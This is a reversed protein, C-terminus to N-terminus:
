VESLLREILRQAQGAYGSGFLNLHNLIHYLNYLHKRVKYGPDLPWTENYAAYFPEAFGGFLETMALEAERDAFYSAPDFLVPATNQDFGINGGWLDGHILSPRPDHDILAAFSELLRKGLQQLRGGYGHTAALQLQYGLRNERWFETWDDTWTNIQPTSGITNDRDWGFRKAQARHMQALQRGAEAQSLAGGHGWDIWEMALYSSDGARGCCLPRPVRITGTEAMARLGALEAEFMALRGASNTKVFWSRSGDTLRVATNICGGGVSSPARPDFPEGSTERIDRGIQAWDTM